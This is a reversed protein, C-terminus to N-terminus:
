RHNVENVFVAKRMLGIGSAINSKHSPFKSIWDQTNEWVSHRGSLLWYSATANSLGTLDMWQVLGKPQFGNEQGKYVQPRLYLANNKRVQELLCADKEPQVAPFFIM